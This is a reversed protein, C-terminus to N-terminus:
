MVRFRWKSDNELNQQTMGDITFDAAYKLLELAIETEETANYLNVSLNRVSLAAQNRLGQLYNPLHNILILPLKDKVLEPITEIDNESPWDENTRLENALADVDNIGNRILYCTTKYARDRDARNVLPNVSIIKKFTGLQKTKFARSLAQDYRTAFFPSIFDIFQPLKYISEIRFGDFLSVDGKSLFSNLKSNNAISHYFELRSQDALEEIAREVDSKGISTGHHTFQGDDSLDIEAQVKRKAKKIIAPDIRLVDISQLNLIDIPNIFSM